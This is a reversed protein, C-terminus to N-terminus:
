KVCLNNDTVYKGLKMAVVDNNYLRARLVSAEGADVLNDKEDKSIVQAALASNLLMTLRGQDVSGGVSVCEVLGATTVRITDADLSALAIAQKAQSHFLNRIQENRALNRAAMGTAVFQTLKFSSTPLTETSQNMDISALVSAYHDTSEGPAAEKPAAEKFPIVSMEKRKYGFVIGDPLGSATAFGLKLGINSSTGFILLRRVGKLEDSSEPEGPLEPMTVLEAARGTAYLQKIKPSFVALDSQLHGVAPPAAGSDVYDPGIFGETRDYGINVVRTTADANIGINTSTVFVARDTTDCGTLLLALGALPLVARTMRTM